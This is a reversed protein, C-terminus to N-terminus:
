MCVGCKQPWTNNKNGKRLAFNQPTGERATTLTQQATPLFHQSVSSCPHKETQM